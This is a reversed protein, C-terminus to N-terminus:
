ADHERVLALIKQVVEEKTMDSSDILVADEAKKLPATKRHLDRYDREDMEKEIELLDSPENRAILERFRRMARVKARATLYVKTEADPLVVTGIDRGDMVVPQERAVSRQLELLKERVEPYISIVSAMNGTEETRIRDTVDDGNVLIHQVGDQERVSFDAEKLAEAVAKQQKPDVGKEMLFLAAARYMAGTDVHLWGLERSVAEAITSKGAGAPGDLALARLKKEM